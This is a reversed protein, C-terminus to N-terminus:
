GVRGRGAPARGSRPLADQHGIRDAEALGDFDADQEASSILRPLPLRMRTTVVLLMIVWNWFSSHDRKVMGSTRRSERRCRACGCAANGGVGVREVVVVLGDDGDVGQLLFAIEADMQFLAVPVDDDDVFGVVDGDAARRAGRALSASSSRAARVGQNMAEAVGCSPLGADKALRIFMSFGVAM